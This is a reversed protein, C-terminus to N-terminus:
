PWDTAGETLSSLASSHAPQSAPHAFLIFFVSLQGEVEVITMSHNNISFSFYGLSAAGILRLRYTKGHKVNTIDYYDSSKITCDQYKSKGNVLLSDADGIWKFPNELLGNLLTEPSKHWYDSLILIREDDYRLWLKDNPDEVVFAGYLHLDQLGLHAHYFHTGIDEHSVRFQVVRTSNPSMPNNTVFSAGDAFVSGRQHIGHFHISTPEDLTNVIRISVFEGVKVTISPGVFTGNITYTVNEVCDPATLGEGIILTEFLAGVPHLLLLLPVIM